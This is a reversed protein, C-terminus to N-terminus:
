TLSSAPSTMAPLPILVSQFTLPRAPQAPEPNPCSTPAATLSAACRGARRASARQFLRCRRDDRLGARAEDKRGLAVLCRGAGVLAHGQELPFPFTEWRAAADLFLDLAKESEGRAETLAARAAATAILDRGALIPPIAEAQIPTPETYGMERTAQVLHSHLGLAKFPM